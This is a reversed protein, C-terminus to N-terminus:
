KGTIISAVSNQATAHVGMANSMQAGWMTGKQSIENGSGLRLSGSSTISAVGNQATAHMGEAIAGQVGYMTGDQTIRNNSGIRAGEQAAAPQMFAFAGIASCLIAAYSLRMKTKM